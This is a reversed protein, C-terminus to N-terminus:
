AIIVLYMVVIVELFQGVFATITVLFGRKLNINKNKYYTYSSLLSALVDTALAVTVADAIVYILCIM